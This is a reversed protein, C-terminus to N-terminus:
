FHYIKMNIQNVFFLYARQKNNNRKDKSLSIEEITGCKAFDRRLSAETMKAPLHGVFIVRHEACAKDRKEMAKKM